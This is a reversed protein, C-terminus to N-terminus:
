RLLLCISLKDSQVVCIRVVEFGRACVNQVVRRSVVIECAKAKHKAFITEREDLTWSQVADRVNIVYHKVVIHGGRIVVIRSRVGWSTVDPSM